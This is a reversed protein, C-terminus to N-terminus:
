NPPEEWYIDINHNILILWLILMHNIWHSTHTHTHTHIYISYICVRRHTAPPYTGCTHSTSYSCAPSWGPWGPSRLFRRQHSIDEEDCVRMSSLVTHTDTATDTDTQTHTQTNTYQTHTQELSILYYKIMGSLSNKHWLWFYLVPTSNFSCKILYYYVILSCFSIYLLCGRVCKESLLLHQLHLIPTLWCPHHRSTKSQCSIWCLCPSALEM